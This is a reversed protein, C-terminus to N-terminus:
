HSERFGHGPLRPRGRFLLGAHAGDESADDFFQIARMPCSSTWGGSGHSFPVVSEARRDRVLCPHRLTVSGRYRDERKRQQGPVTVFSLNAPPKWQMLIGTAALDELPHGAHEMKRAVFRRLPAATGFSAGAENGGLPSAYRNCHGPWGPEGTASHWKHSRTVIKLGPVTASQVAYDARM